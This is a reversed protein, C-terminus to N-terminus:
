MVSCTNPNEATAGTTGVTEQPAVATENGKSELITVRADLKKLNDNIANIKTDTDDDAGGLQRINQGLYQGSLAIQNQHGSLAIRNQHGGLAIQNQHGGLAIQNQHGSPAIQNQHGGLGIQNQPSYPNHIKFIFTEQSDIDRVTFTKAGSIKANKVESYCKKAGKILSSTEYIKDSIIPKILQYRKNM